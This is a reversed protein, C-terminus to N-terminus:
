SAIKSSPRYGRLMRERENDRYRQRFDKTAEVVQEIYFRINRHFSAVDEHRANLYILFHGEIPDVIAKVMDWAGTVEFAAKRISNVGEETEEFRYGNTVSIVPLRDYNVQIKGEETEVNVFDEGQRCTYGEDQLIMMIRDGTLGPNLESAHSTAPVLDLENILECIEQSPLNGPISEMELRRVRQALQEIKQEYKDM